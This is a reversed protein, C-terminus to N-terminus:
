KEDGEAQQAPASQPSTTAPIFPNIGDKIQGIYKNIAVANQPSSSALLQLEAVALATQKLYTYSGALELMSQLDSPNAVLIEKYLAIADQYKGTAYLGEAYASKAQPFDPAETYATKLFAVAETSSAEGGNIYNQAIAFLVSQKVPSLQYAKKLFPLAMGWQNLGNYFSGAFLYVRLDEPTDVTQDVFAKSTLQYFDGKVKNTVNNSGFVGGVCSYLQERTEQRGIYPGNLASVFYSTDAPPAGNQGVYQCNILANILSLNQQIPQVNVFYIATATVITVIPAVIWDAVETNVAIARIRSEIRSFMGPDTESRLRRAYWESSLFALVVFFMMYSALNDFVFMNHIAYAVLLATLVARQKIDFDSKWVAIFALVFLAIYTGLGLVGGNIAWDIFVNHARDFWQEQAWAKPDYNNNFVYNFNEQGWGLIPKEKFGIWAIPWIFQVRPNNISISAIRALTTHSQVFHSNRELYFGVGGLIVLGLFSGAVIRQVKNKARAENSAHKLSSDKAFAFIGCVILIGAILALTTGRTQTFYLVFSYLLALAVYVWGSGKKKAWAVVAMYGALFANILMYVALYESNGISADLRDASQHIQAHHTLQLIAWFAVLFSAVFSVNFIRHWNKRTAELDEARAISTFVMFYMWLHIISVWGEMREFNSWISRIFNVGTIDVFLAVLTFVTVGVTLATVKPRAKVDRFALVLWVAFALEILIRFIFAKTTIFPFFFGGAINLWTNSLASGGDYPGFLTVFLSAGLLFYIIYRLVSNARTTNTNMATIM